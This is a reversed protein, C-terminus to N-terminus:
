YDQCEYVGADDKRCTNRDKRWGIIMVNQVDVYHEKGVVKRVYPIYQKTTMFFALDYLQLMDNGGPIITEDNRKIAVVHYPDDPGSIEKM